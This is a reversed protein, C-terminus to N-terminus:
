SKRSVCFNRQFSMAFIDLNDEALLKAAPETNAVILQLCGTLWFRGDGPLIYDVLAHSLREVGDGEDASV